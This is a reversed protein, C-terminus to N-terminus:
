RNKKAILILKKIKYTKDFIILLNNNLTAKINKLNKLIKLDKYINEYNIVENAELTVSTVFNSKLTIEKDLDIKLDGEKISLNEIRASINKLLIDTKDSFFDFKANEIEINKTVKLELDSVSGRFIFDDISNNM